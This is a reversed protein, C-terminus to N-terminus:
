LWRPDFPQWCEDYGLAEPPTQHLSATRPQTKPYSKVLALPVYPSPGQPRGHSSDNPTRSGPSERLGMKQWGLARGRGAGPSRLHKNFPKRQALVGGQDNRNMQLATPIAVQLGGLREPKNWSDKCATGTSWRSGAKNAQLGCFSVSNTRLSAKSRAFGVPSQRM